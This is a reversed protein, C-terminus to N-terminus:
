SMPRERRYRPNSERQPRWHSTLVVPFGEPNGTKSKDETVERQQIASDQLVEVAGEPLDILLDRLVDPPLEPHPAGFSGRVVAAKDLYRRTMEESTHGAVLLLWRADRGAVAWHTIATHRLGHWTFPMHEADDRFLDGRTLGARDLDKKMLDSAGGKGDARPVDFLPGTPFAKVLAALLPRFAPEIPVVRRAATSKKGRIRIM